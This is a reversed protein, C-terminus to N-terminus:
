RVNSKYMNYFIGQQDKLYEPAGQEVIQGSELVIVRDCQLAVDLRQAVSVVTIKKQKLMQLFRNQMSNDLASTAEDLLLITPKKILSRCLEIRQREGGSLDAGNDKIQRYYGEPFSHILDKLQCIEVVEDIQNLSYEDNWLTLNELISAKFVFVDQPVYAISKRILDGSYSNLPLGDFLLQGGQPQSLGALLRLLTTKGCGSPGVIAIHEGCAINLTLNQLIPTGTLSFSYNIKDLTINGSIKTERIIKLPENLESKTLSSVLLDIESTKLDVIRGLSGFLRQYTSNFQPLGSIPATLQSQLFKFAFLSGLSLKGAIILLGGLCLVFGNLLFVTGTSLINSIAIQASLNQNQVLMIGFSAQWQSLFNFELGSAKIAEINGVGQMGKGLAKGTEIALSLNDDYRAEALFWNFLLNGVLMFLVLVSLWGSVTFAAIFVITSTVISLIYRLVQVLLIHSIQIGLLLRSALEGPFRVQYFLFAKTFLEKFLQAAITKSIVIEIRRLVLYEFVIVLLWCISVLLLVWIIPIGIYFQENELFNDIFVSTIGAVAIALACQAISLLLLIIFERKYPALLVLLPALLNAPKGKPKFGSSPEFELVYGSFRDNFESIPVRKRGSAPDSLFAHTKSFGELVLFHNHNWYIICPFLGTNIVEESSCRFLKSNLQYSEGAELIKRASTGDRTVGCRQRAENLDVYYKFYGLIISLSAAGCETAEYQLVAPAKIRNHTLKLMRM